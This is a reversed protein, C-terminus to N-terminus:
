KIPGAQTKTIHWNGFPIYRGIFIPFPTWTSQCIIGGNGKVFASSDKLIGAPRQFSQPRCSWSPLVTVNRGSWFAFRMTSEAFRISIGGTGSAMNMSATSSTTRALLSQIGGKSDPPAKVQPGVKKCGTGDDPDLWGIFILETQKAGRYAVIEFISDLWDGNTNGVKVTCGRTPCAMDFSAQVVGHTKM